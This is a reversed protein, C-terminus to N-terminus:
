LMKGQSTKKVYEVMARRLVDSPDVPGTPNNLCRDKFIALLSPQVRMNLNKTKAETLDLTLQKEM